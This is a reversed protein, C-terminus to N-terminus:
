EKCTKIDRSDRIPTEHTMHKEQEPTSGAGNKGVVDATRRQPEVEVWKSIM